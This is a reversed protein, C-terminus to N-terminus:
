SALYRALAFFGEDGSGSGAAVLKGDGQIALARVIDNNFGPGGGFDTFVAGDVGFRRDLRGSSTLRFLTFDLGSGIGPIGTFGGVVLKGDAQIVLANGNGGGNVDITVTGRDGFRRDLRGDPLYRALAFANGLGGVNGAAVIKGDPQIAVARAEDNDDGFNDDGDFGTIVVGGGEGNTGFGSDLNGDPLFRILTFSCSPLNTCARGTAVIKGDGQLAVADFVEPGGFLDVTQMGGFGFSPDLTGDPLYRAVAFDDFGEGPNFSSGAVVIKGDAQVAVANARSSTDSVVTTVKGGVGFGPDLTGDPQFRALAFGSDLGVDTSGAAIIKGDPLLAISSIWDNDGVGSFDFTVRGAGGFSPDPTGDPEYRALAFDRHTTDTTTFGGAVVKGDPQVAVAWAEDQFGDFDTVVKGGTGFSPDLDGGAAQAPAALALQLALLGAAAPLLRRAARRAGRARAPDAACPRFYSPRM